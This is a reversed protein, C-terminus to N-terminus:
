SEEETVSQDSDYGQCRSLGPSPQAMAARAGSTANLLHDRSATAGFDGTM